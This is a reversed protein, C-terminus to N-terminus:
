ALFPHVSIPLLSVFVKLRGKYNRGGRWASEIRLRRGPVIHLWVFALARHQGISTPDGDDQIVLVSASQLQTLGEELRSLAIQRAVGDVLALM